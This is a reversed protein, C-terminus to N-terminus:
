LIEKLSEYTVADNAALQADIEERYERWYALAADMLYVPWEISESARAADYDYGRAVMIAEWVAMHGKVYARRGLISTRFDIRPHDESRLAEEVLIAATESHKKGLRRALRRLRDLQEEKLRMSVVHSM